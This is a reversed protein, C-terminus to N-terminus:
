VRVAEREAEDRGLAAAELSDFPQGLNLDRSGCYGAVNYGPHTM